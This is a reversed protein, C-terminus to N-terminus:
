VYAERLRDKTFEKSLGNLKSIFIIRLNKIEQEKSILYALLVEPGYTVAKSAKAFDM